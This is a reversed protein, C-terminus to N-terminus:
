ARVWLRQLETLWTEPREMPSLHATGGLVVEHAAPLVSRLARADHGTVLRDREGYGALV